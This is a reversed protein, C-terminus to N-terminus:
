RGKQILELTPRPFKPLNDKQWSATELRALVSELHVPAGLILLRTESIGQHNISWSVEQVGAVPMGSHKDLIQTGEPTGDSRIELELLQPAIPNTDQTTM